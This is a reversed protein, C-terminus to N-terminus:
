SFKEILYFWVLTVFFLLGAVLILILVVGQLDFGLGFTSLGEGEEGIFFKVLNLFIFSVALFVIAMIEIFLLKKGKM